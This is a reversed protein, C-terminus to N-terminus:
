KIMFVDKLRKGSKKHYWYRKGDDSKKYEFDSYKHEKGTSASTFVVKSNTGDIDTRDITELSAKYDIDSQLSLKEQEAIKAELEKKRKRKEAAIKINHRHQRVAGIIQDSTYGQSRLSNVIEVERSNAM